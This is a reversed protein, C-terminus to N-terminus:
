VKGGLRRMGSWLRAALYGGGKPVGQPYARAPIHSGEGMNTYVQSILPKRQSADTVSITYLLDTHLCTRAYWREGYNKVAKKAHVQRWHM